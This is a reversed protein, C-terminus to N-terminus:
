SKCEILIEDDDREYSVFRTPYFSNGAKCTVELDGNARVQDTLQKIVESAKM